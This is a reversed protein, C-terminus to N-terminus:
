LGPRQTTLQESCRGEIRGSLRGGGRVERPSKVPGAHHGVAPTVRFLHRVSCKTQALGRASHASSLLIAARSGAWSRDGLCFFKLPRIITSFWLYEAPGIDESVLGPSSLYTHLCPSGLLCFGPWRRGQLLVETTYIDM